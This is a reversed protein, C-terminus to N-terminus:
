QPPKCVGCPVYGADKAESVSGFSIINLPNISEAHRCDPFHYRDSLTSGVFKGEIDAENL